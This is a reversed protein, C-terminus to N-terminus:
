FSRYLFSVVEGGKITLVAYKRQSQFDELTVTRFNGFDVEGYVHTHGAFEYAVNNKAYLALLRIREATELMDCWMVNTFCPYHTFVVKRCCDGEMRDTLEQFQRSGLIGDATDTFYFSMGGTRIRFFTTHFVDNMYNRGNNGADFTDHNGPICFVPINLDELNRRFDAFLSYEDHTGENTLDGLVACFRIQKRVEEGMGSIMQVFDAAAAKGSGFHPDAIVLVTFEDADASDLEIDKFIARRSVPFEAEYWNGWWDTGGCSFFSIGTLVFVAISIIRNSLM